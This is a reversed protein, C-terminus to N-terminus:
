RKKELISLVIKEENTLGTKADTKEIEDLQDFYNQITGSEYQSIIEPHIYYKKCVARTNGLQAAVRDIAEVVLKKKESETEACGLERFALFAKVTGSWTRFDKSTFDEGCIDKIYNNVMGSDISQRKGEEDYYQFLEKGPIEKCQQVMRALRPSKIGIDQYVGKKGKFSFQISSGKVDIHKDKLTTLGFSGYMKEYTSNGVRISTREMLSVILALVKERSMGRRSLDKEIQLRIAPLAHAFQVMRHYKRQNRLEIWLPHYLYQKRGLADIGTAQLHGNEMPCIWVNNWAPPIVLKKIRELVKRDKVTGGEYLYQFGKKRKKRTIGTTEGDLVYVLKMTRAAKVPDNILTVTTKPPMDHASDRTEM